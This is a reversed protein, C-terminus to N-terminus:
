CHASVVNCFSICYLVNLLNTWYYYNVNTSGYNSPFIMSWNGGITSVRWEVYLADMTRIINKTPISIFILDYSTQGLNNQCSSFFLTHEVWAINSWFFKHNDFMIWTSCILGCCHNHEVLNIETTSKFM